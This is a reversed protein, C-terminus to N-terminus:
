ARARIAIVPGSGPTPLPDTSSLLFVGTAQRAADQSAATLVAKGVTTADQIAAANLTAWSKDGRYYQSSSGAAVTPEKGSLASATAAGDAAQGSGTGVVVSSTGAGIAARAAPGDVARVLAKGTATADTLDDATLTVAGTRGAVSGVPSAPYAMQTWSALQTPNTGTITWVTGLDDRIAFDGRQGSLALMAAQSSVHGLFEVIAISPIQAASIQGNGDLSAVGNPQGKTSSPVAATAIQFTNDLDAALAYSGAPQAGISAPTIGDIQSNVHAITAYNTLVSDLAAQAEETTSYAGLTSTLMAQTIYSELTTALEEDDVYGSLDPPVPIDTKLAYPELESVHVFDELDTALETNTVYAQGTPAAPAAGLASLSLDLTVNGNEDPLEENVSNVSGTGTGGPLTINGEADPTHGNVSKAYAVLSGWWADPPLSGSELSAPDVRYDALLEQLTLAPVGSDDVPYNAVVAHGVWGEVNSWIEVGQGAVADPLQTEALGDVDTRVQWAATSVLSATSGDYALNVLQFRFTANARPTLGTATFDDATILLTTTM